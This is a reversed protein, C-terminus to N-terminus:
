REFSQLRPQVKEKPGITCPGYDITGSDLKVTIDLKRMVKLTM